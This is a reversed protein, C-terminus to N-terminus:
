SKVKLKYSEDMLQKLASNISQSTHPASLFAQLAGKPNLLMISSSHDVLYEEAQGSSGPVKMFVVSMQSTLDRIMESDGTVATFGPDFYRIYAGLSDISDREPDVSVFYVNPFIQKLDKKARALTQLTTPCIDPCHTYGFFILSWHDQLVASTFANGDHMKLSEPVAISRASSLVSGQIDMARLSSASEMSRLASAAWIGLIMSAIAAVIFLIKLRM